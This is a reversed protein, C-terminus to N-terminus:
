RQVNEKKRGDIITYFSAFESLEREQWLKWKGISHRQLGATGHRSNKV